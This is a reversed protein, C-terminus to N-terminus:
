AFILDCKRKRSKGNLMRSLSHIAIGEYQSAEKASNYFVGTCINVVLKSQYTAEGKDYRLRQASKLSAIHDSSRAPKRKGKQALSMKMRADETIGPHPKNNALRSAVTKAIHEPKRKKGKNLANAALVNAKHTPSMKRGKLKDIMALRQEDRMIGKKDPTGTLLVNMGNDGLVDYFDQWYRERINLMEIACEEVMEFVHNDVGYKDFSPHLRPHNRNTRNPTRYNFFRYASNKTQGIYVKGDPATIKYIGIM